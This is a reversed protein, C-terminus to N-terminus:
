KYACCVLFVYSFLVAPMLFIYYWRYRNNRKEVTLISLTVALYTMIFVIISLELIM